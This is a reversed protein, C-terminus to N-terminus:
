SRPETKGVSLKQWYGPPPWPVGLTDCAKALEGGSVGYRAALRVLPIAWVEAYLTERDLQKNGQEAHRVELRAQQHAITTGIKQQPM